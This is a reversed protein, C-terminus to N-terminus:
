CFMVQFRLSFIDNHVGNCKYRIGMRFGSTYGPQILPEPFPTMPLLEKSPIVLLLEMSAGQAHPTVSQTTVLNWQHVMKRHAALSGATM